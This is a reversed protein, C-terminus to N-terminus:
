QETLSTLVFGPEIGATLFYWIAVLQFGLVALTYILNFFHGLSLIADKLKNPYLGVTIYFLGFMFYYFIRAGLVSSQVKEPLPDSKKM